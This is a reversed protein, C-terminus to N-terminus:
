DFQEEFIYIVIPSEGRSGGGVPAAGHAGEVRRSPSVEEPPGEHPPRGGGEGGRGRSRVEVRGRRVVAVVRPRGQLIWVWADRLRLGRLFVWSSLIERRKAEQRWMGGRTEERRRRAEQRRGERLGERGDRRGGEKGSGGRRWRSQHDKRYPATSFTVTVLGEKDAEGATAKLLKERQGERGKRRLRHDVRRCAHPRRSPSPPPPRLPSPSLPRPALAPMRVVHLHTSWLRLGMEMGEDM